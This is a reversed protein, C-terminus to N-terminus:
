WYIYEELVYKLLLINNTSSHKEWGLMAIALYMITNFIIDWPM